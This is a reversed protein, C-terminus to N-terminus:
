GVMSRVSPSYFLSLIEDEFLRGLESLREGEQVPEILGLDTLRAALVRYERYLGPLREIVGKVYRDETRISRLGVVYSAALREEDDIPRVTAIPPLGNEIRTMYGDISVDNRFFLGDVTGDADAHSYASAGVGLLDHRVSTRVVKFPDNNHDRAFRNGDTQRYGLEEMRHWILMRGLLTEEETEFLEPHEQFWQWQQKDDGFRGHYYTLHPPRIKGVEQLNDWVEDPNGKYLGQILDFNYNPFISAARICAEIAEDQSQRRGARKLVENDFSQVGFSLRGVGEEKLFRLKEEGRPATITRPSAEVCWPVGPIIDFESRIINFLQRLQLTSLITPTGGGIFVSDIRTGRKRLEKGRMRIERYLADLYREVRSRRSESIDDEGLSLDVTYHCFTCMMECFAIHVYLGTSNRFRIPHATDPNYPLLSHLPPQTVVSHSRGPDERSISIGTERLQPLREPVGLQCLAAAAKALADQKNRM